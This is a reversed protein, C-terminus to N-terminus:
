AGTIRGEAVDAVAPNVATARGNLYNATGAPRRRPVRLGHADAEVLRPKVLPMWTIRSM